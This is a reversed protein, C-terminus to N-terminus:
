PLIKVLESIPQDAWENFEAIMADSSKGFNKEFSAEFGLTDLDKYFNVRVTEESTQSIIYAIFWTGLDYIEFPADFGIDRMSRGDELYTSLTEAKWSMVQSFYNDDVGPQLSYWYQGMYEASGEAFWPRQELSGDMKLNRISTRWDGDTDDDPDSIHGHQYVHFYEHLVVKKYDEEEPGPYKSSMTIINFWYDLNSQIYTSVASCGEDVCRYFPSWGDGSGYPDGNACDWETNWKPDKQTRVDCWLNDLAIAGEYTDGVIWLELPGYSGWFEIGKKVWELTIDIHQQTVDPAAYIEIDGYWEGWVSENTNQEDSNQTSEQNPTSEQDSTSEQSEEVVSTINDINSSSSNDSGGCFIFILIFILLKNIRLVQRKKDVM